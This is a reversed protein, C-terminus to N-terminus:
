ATVALIVSTAKFLAIAKTGKALGLAKVSGETVIAAV